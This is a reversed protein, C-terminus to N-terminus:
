PQDEKGTDLRELTEDLVATMQDRVVLDALEALSDLASGEDWTLVAQSHRVPASDSAHERQHAAFAEADTLYLAAPDGHVCLLHLRVKDAATAVAALVTQLTTTSTM